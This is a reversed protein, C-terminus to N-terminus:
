ESRLSKVPNAVATKIAQFSVTFLAIIIVLVAASAFLWWSLSIRYPYNQLWQHAAMWASPVAILLAICVLKLFDKSLITVIANVSAGLVKRIGIEKTRKEASLVSLGFLGICSIFITLIAAFLMIQKWKAEAEYRMRNQQDKFNYTYPSLPFFQKFIKQIQKLSETETNPKIKIFITGFQNDNKMTFLQPKIEENLPQFHYDKVVGVVNYKKNDYWFNVVEGIPHKWGAKKVFSENVIVSNVSDSPYGASFNRGQVLPIKLLPLYSEDVTEYSFQITSDNSIKAVTGWSGGNKPAVGVINPYKMLENQFLRAQQHSIRSKNVVVLNTDDYGLKETTLYNFQAYITFTAIILFSALTFQLVVLSKQLYGKGALNFRSYLTEVPNYGSLILAPYFGALLGTIFFLLIYGAILRADFLYSLALAKNSLDNFVPLILQVLVIAFVFAFTCLFFSEGLFQLILQQRNSGVVKRIGIEKARKVSRAVTLNIFNICAILLIFIAIGSLIYSYVPNSANSLGNQAPLETNMHMDAFPQLFYENDFDIPGFKENILKLAEKSEAKYVKQMKADVAQVNANPNLVVFTNLFFNFWNEGNSMEDPPTIFPLLVDFQISSNQPCKKAVATVTYPEFASDKKLMIVKGIADKNGFQRKAMEESLVVANPEQLCTKPNGSKLPFSFVSLFSSDVYLMDQSKIETGTKIDISNSQIRVFAKIEPINQGFRPGQFYGTNSDKRGKVGKKDISQTVVRYINGVNAHFRDYSVEDKVYLMILMACALGISLGAINIFAYIKNRLLNRFATKFFNKFM